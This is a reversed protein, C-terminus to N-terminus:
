PASIQLWELKSEVFEAFTDSRVARFFELMEDADSPSNLTVVEYNVLIARVMNFASRIPLRVLTFGDKSIVVEDEKTDLMYGHKLKQADKQETNSPGSM